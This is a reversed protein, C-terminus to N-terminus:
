CNMPLGRLITRDTVWCPPYPEDPIILPQIPSNVPFLVFRYASSYVLKQVTIQLGDFHYIQPSSIHDIKAHELANNHHNIINDDHENDHHHAVIVHFLLLTFGTLLFIRSISLKM